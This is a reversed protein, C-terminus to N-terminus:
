LFPSMGPWGVAGFFIADFKKLQPIGDPPIYYGKTLYTKSSWDFTQFDFAFKESADALKKLVEVAAQSIDVGIGDGPIVAIKYVKQVSHVTSPSM